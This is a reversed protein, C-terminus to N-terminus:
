RVGPLRLSAVVPDHDSPHFGDPRADLVAYREVAIDPTVLVYDIRQRPGPAPREPDVLYTFTTEPGEPPTASAARSDLLGGGLLIRLPESDPEANLDGTVIAPGGGTIAEIRSLLLRASAARARVGEHDFHSNLFWFRAGTHLDEFRAWTCLRRYDPADWGASPVDPTSSFWFDGSDLVALRATRYLIASYEGTTGGDRPRGVAAFGTGGTLLALHAGTGEQTGVVDLHSLMGRVMAARDYTRSRPWYCVWLNYSGVRLASM